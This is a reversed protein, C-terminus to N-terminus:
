NLWFWSCCVISIIILTPSLQNYKGLLLKLLTYSIIGLVAGATISFCFPMMLVTIGVVLIDEFDNLVLNRLNALMLLGVIMLIPATAISPIISILPALFIFPLCLLATVLSAFGTKAGNQIASSSEVFIVSPSSGFVASLMGGFADTFLAKRLYLNKEHQSNFHMQSLLGLITSTADFFNVLFLSLIAPLVSLKLAGWVNIQMFLSFDPLEFWHSPLQPPNLLWYIISILLIPLLFAYSKRKIFLASVLIFGLLSLILSSDIKGMALITNSSAVVIGANKLGIFFLFIGIGASLAIQLFDPLAHIIIQRIKTVSFIFLLLSSFLIVGLATPIDLKDHLILGYTIMANMGMGPALVFPLKIIFGALMTMCITILVTSTIAPSLPFGAGNAHLILPNVMIIYAVAMFNIIGGIIEQNYNIPVNTQYSFLKTM